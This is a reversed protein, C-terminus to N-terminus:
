QKPSEDQVAAEGGLSAALHTEAPGPKAGLRSAWARLGVFVGLAIIPLAIGAGFSLIDETHGTLVAGMFDVALVVVTVGILNTELDETSDIKLWGPLQLEKIFLQYLGLATLFIVTGVLFTHVYQLLQFIVLETDVTKVRPSFGVAESVLEVLLRLLAIGGFVFLLAATTALGLVPIIVLYRAGSLLRSM